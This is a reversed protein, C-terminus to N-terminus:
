KKKIWGTDQCDGCHGRKDKLCWCPEFYTEFWSIKEKLDGIEKKLEDEVIKVAWREKETM